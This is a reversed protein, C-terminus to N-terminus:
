RWLQSRTSYLDYVEVYTDGSLLNSKELQIKFIPMLLEISCVKIDDNSV